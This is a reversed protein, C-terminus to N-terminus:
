TNVEYIRNDRGRILTTSPKQGGGTTLPPTNAQAVQTGQGQKSAKVDPAREEYNASVNPVASQRAVTTGPSSGGSRNVAQSANSSTNGASRTGSGQSPSSLAVEINEPSATGPKDQAPNADNAYSVIKGEQKALIQRLTLPSSKNGKDYFVNPNAKAAKPFMEAGIADPNEKLAKLFRSAGAPGLFYGMYVEGYSPKRGLTRQLTENITNIYLGAVEASKQPDTRDQSTYPLKYQKCLYSWTSETFQFLGVASSTSAGADSRFSSEAGAVAYLLAYDVKKLMAANRIASRTSDNSKATRVRNSNVDDPHSLPSPGTSVGAPGPAQEDKKGFQDKVWGKGKDAVSPQEQGDPEDHKFLEFLSGIAAIISGVAMFIQFMDSGSEEKKQTSQALSLGLKHSRKEEVKFMGLLLSATANRKEFM